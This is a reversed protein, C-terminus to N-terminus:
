PPWHWCPPPGCRRISKTACCPHGSSGGSNRWVPDSERPSGLNFQYPFNTLAFSARCIERLQKIFGGSALETLNGRAQPHRGSLSADSSVLATGDVDTITVEYILPSYGVESEILSSLGGNEDLAKRVYERLDAPSNSAPAAGSNGAEVLANRAQNFVQLGVLQARENAQRIVERTLTIVYLTSNVGVVALVLLATTLTIKTKLRLQM